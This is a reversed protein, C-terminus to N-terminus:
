LLGTLPQADGGGRHTLPNAAQLGKEPGVQQDPPPRAEVGRRVELARLVVQRRGEGRQLPHAFAKLKLPQAFKVDNGIGVPGLEPEGGPQGAEALDHGAQLEADVPGSVHWHPQAVGVDAHGDAGVAPALHQECVAIHRHAADLVGGAKAVPVLLHLHLAQGEEMGPGLAFVRVHRPPLVPEGAKAQAPFADVPADAIAVHALGQLSHAFAHGVPKGPQGQGLLVQRLPGHDQEVRRAAAHRRGM